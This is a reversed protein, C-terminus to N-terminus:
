ATTHSSGGLGDEDGDSEGGSGEADGTATRVV